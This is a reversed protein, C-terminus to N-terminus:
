LEPTVASPAPVGRGKARKLAVLCGIHLTMVLFCLATVTSTREFGPSYALVLVAGLWGASTLWRLRQWARVSM